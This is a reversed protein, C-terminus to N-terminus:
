FLELSKFIHFVVVLHSEFFTSFRRRVLCFDCCSGVFTKPAGGCSMKNSSYNMRNLRTEFYSIM